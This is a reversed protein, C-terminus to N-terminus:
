CDEDTRGDCDNDLGDGCVEDQDGPAIAQQCESWEGQECYQAGEECIGVSRGCPRSTSHLCACQEDAVGDCDNDIGDCAEESPQPATCNTWEGEICEESGNGCANSCDRTLPGGNDDEDIAGDCDDDFTNCEETRTGCQSPEDDVCGVAFLLLLSYFVNFSVHTM